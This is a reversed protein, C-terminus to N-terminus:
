LGEGHLRTVEADGEERAIVIVMTITRVLRQIAQDPVQETLTRLHTNIRRRDLM